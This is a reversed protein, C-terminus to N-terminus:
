TPISKFRTKKKECFYVCPNAPMKYSLNDSFRICFAVVFIPQLLSNVHVHLIPLGRQACDADLCKSAHIFPCWHTLESLDVDCFITFLRTKRLTKVCDTTYERYLSIACFLSLLLLLFFVCM